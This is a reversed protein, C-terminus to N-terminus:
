KGGGSKMKRRFVFVALAFLAAAYVMVIWLKGMIAGYDGNLASRAADVANAFPLCYAIKKGAEGFLELPFWTGSLWASVNTLLAGCVGGVQKDTMSSGCLLGISIFLVAAPLITLVCMVINVFGAELGLVLAVIFCCLVQAVALPFMPLTYGFLFDNAKLPSSFLRTLFAECRDRAVIMGGFLSVFSLGFVAIGPTLTRLSFMDMQAGSPINRGLIYLLLLILIPFALGFFLNVKERMMEKFNRGAFSIM